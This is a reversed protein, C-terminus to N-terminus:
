GKRSARQASALRQANEAIKQAARAREAAIKDYRARHGLQDVLAPNLEVRGYGMRPLANTAVFGRATKMLFAHENGAKERLAKGEPSKLFVELNHHEAKVNRRIANGMGIGLGGMAAGMAPGVGYGRLEPILSHIAIGNAIGAAGLAMSANRTGRATTIRNAVSAEPSLKVKNRIADRLKIRLESQPIVLKNRAAAKRAEAFRRREMKPRQRARARAARAEPNMPPTM